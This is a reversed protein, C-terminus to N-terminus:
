ICIIIYSIVITYIYICMKNITCIFTSHIYIHISYINKNKYM